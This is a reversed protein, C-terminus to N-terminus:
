AAPAFDLSSASTINLLFGVWEDADPPVLASSALAKLETLLDKFQQSNGQEYLIHSLNNIAASRVLFAIGDVEATVVLLKAVQTYLFAAKRLGEPSGHHGLLHYALATNMIICASSLYLSASSSIIPNHQAIALASNFIFFHQDQLHTLPMKTIGVDHSTIESIPPAPLVPGTNSSAQDQYGAVGAPNALSSRLLREIVSLSDCLRQIALPTNGRSLHSVGANNLDLSAEVTDMQNSKSLFSVQCLFIIDYDLM